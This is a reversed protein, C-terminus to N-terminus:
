PRFVIVVGNGLFCANAEYSFLCPWFSIISFDNRMYEFELDVFKSISAAGTTMFVDEDETNQTRNPGFLLLWRAVGM